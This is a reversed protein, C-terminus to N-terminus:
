ATRARRFAAVQDVIIDAVVPEAGIARCYWLARGRLYYPGAPTGDAGMRAMEPTDADLGLRQPVDRAGHLGNSIMFPIAIVCGRTGLGAWDEVRPEQELFAVRTEAAVGINDLADAVARTQIHSRQDRTNGHGILLVCLDDAAIDVHRALAAVRAAIAAAMRPHTGVPDCQYIRQRGAATLRETVPGTLGMEGPIVESTIYGRCALNPVVYVEPASVTALIEHLYPPEKWFAVRVEAFLGRARIAEAHDVTAQASGPDLKSGHGVLILAADQPAAQPRLPDAPDAM